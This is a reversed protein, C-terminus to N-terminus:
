GDQDAEFKLILKVVEIASCLKLLKRNDLSEVAIGMNYMQLLKSRTM